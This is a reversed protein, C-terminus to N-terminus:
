DTDSDSFAEKARRGLGPGAIRSLLALMPAVPASGHPAPPLKNDEMSQAGSTNASAKLGTQISTCGALISTAMADASEDSTSQSALAPDDCADRGRALSPRPLEATPTHTRGQLGESYQSMNDPEQKALLEGDGEFENGRASRMLPPVSEAITLESAVLTRSESMTAGAHNVSSCKQSGTCNIGDSGKERCHHGLLSWGGLALRLLWAGHLAALRKGVRGLRFAARGVATGRIKANEMSSRTLRDLLAARSWAVVIRLLIIAAGMSTMQLKRSLRTDETKM